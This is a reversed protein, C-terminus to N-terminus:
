PAAALGLRLARESRALLALAAPVGARHVHIEALRLLTTGVLFVVLRPDLAADLARYRRLFARAVRNLRQPTTESRLARLRLHAILNAVDIAPESMAADDLDLMALASGDALLQDEYFDRHVPRWRWPWGHGCGEAALLLCREASLRLAPEAATLREVRDSLPSLEDALSHRRELVVQSSHLAHLVDAIEYGLDRDGARLRDLLPSGPLPATAVLRADEDWGLPVPIAVRSGAAIQRYSEHVRAARRNAYTKAFVCAGDDLQYRLTCRRGPKHRLVQVASVGVPRGLTRSLVPRAAVPDLLSHLQPLKRDAAGRGARDARLRAGALDVLEEIREPWAPELHRFPRVALALLAAAEFALVGTLDFGVDACAELFAARGADDGRVSLHALFNGVDVLPHGLRAEDLDLIVVQEPAVLLQDDYFDGHALVVPANCTELRKATEAALKAGAGCLSPLLSDIARGAPAIRLREPSSRGDRPARSQLNRLAEAAPRLWRLYQESRAIDALRVGPAEAYVVAGLQAVDAIATATPVGRGAVASTLAFRRSSGSDAYVKLYLRERPSDFRLLAKRGPKHRIAEVGARALGRPALDGLLRAVKRPSAARVLAPLRSDLPSAEVLLNLDDLFLAQLPLGPHRRRAREVLRAFAASQWTRAARADAFLWAHLLATTSGITTDYQVLLSTEPKYRAYCPRCTVAEDIAAAIRAAFADGDLLAAARSGLADDPPPPIRM